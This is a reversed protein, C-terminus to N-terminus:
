PGTGPPEPRHPPATTSPAAAASSAAASSSASRRGSLPVLAVLIAIVAGLGVETMRHLATVTSSQGSPDSSLVIVLAIPAALFSRNLAAAFALIAVGVVILALDPVGMPRGLALFVGVVAGVLTGIIRDRGSKVAGGRSARAVVIASIVAWTPQALQLAEAIAYALGAAVTTRLANRLEKGHAVAWEHLRILPNM